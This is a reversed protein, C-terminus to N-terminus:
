MINLLSNIVSEDNFIRIINVDSVLVM